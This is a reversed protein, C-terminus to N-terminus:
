PISVLAAATVLATIQDATLGIAEGLALLTTSNAPIVNTGHAFFASVASNNLAAVAAQAATWQTPTMVSQLQWLQCSPIPAPPAVYAAIAGFDGAVARSFIEAGHAEYDTATATFPITGLTDFTVQCNIMTHAADAWQCDAVTTYALTM